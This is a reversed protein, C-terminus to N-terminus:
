GVLRRALEDLLAKPLGAPDLTVTVPGGAGTARGRAKAADLLAPTTFRGPTKTANAYDVADKPLGFTDATAPATFQSVAVGGEVCWSEVHGDPYKASLALPMDTSREEISEGGGLLYASDYEDPFIQDFHQYSTNPPYAIKRHACAIGVPRTQDLWVRPDGTVYVRQDRRYTEHRWELYEGLQRIQNADLRRGTRGENEVGPAWYNGGAAHSCRVWDPYYTWWGDPRNLHNFTGPSSHHRYKGLGRSDDGETTHVVFGLSADIRRGANMAWDAGPDLIAFPPVGEM